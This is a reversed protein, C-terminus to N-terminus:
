PKELLWTHIHSNSWLSPQTSFFILGSYENSPSISFSFSWYKPWRIHLVLENSFVRISPLNFTPPSPSSLSHTLPHYRQHSPCSNSYAWPTPSPCPPRTHQLGHPDWLTLCLQAVSSFYYIIVASNQVNGLLINIKRSDSNTWLIWKDQYNVM